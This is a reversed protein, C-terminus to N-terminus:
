KPKPKWFFYTVKNKKDDWTVVEKNKHFDLYSLMAFDGGCFAAHTFLLGLAAYCHYESLFPILAFAILSITAFPALAVVSFEKAGAVFRHAMAMFILKKLDADYSVEKAGCLRYAIAHIYEHLPILLFAFAFGLATKGLAEALIFDPSSSLDTGLRAGIVVLMLISFGFYFVPWFAFRYIYRKVFPVLDRHQLTDLQLYGEIELDEPSIKM